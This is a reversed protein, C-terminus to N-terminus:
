RGRAGPPGSGSRVAGAGRGAGFAAASPGASVLRRNGASGSALICATDNTSTDGDVTVRNFSRDMARRFAADLLPAEIAADTAFFGFVTAMRPAVMGAGKAMGIIVVRQGDLELTVAAQKPSTDTTMIALAAADFGRPSLMKAAAPIGERLKLMPLRHGIVGTSAVLIEEKRVGLVGATLQAMERADALGEEGTCANACGSNAVIARLSGNAAHERGLIVPPACFQN